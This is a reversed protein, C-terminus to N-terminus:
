KTAGFMRALTDIHVSKDGCVDVVAKWKLTKPNQVVGVVTSRRHYDKAVADSFRRSSESVEHRSVAEFVYTAGM